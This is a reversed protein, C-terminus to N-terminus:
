DKMLNNKTKATWFSLKRQNKILGVGRKSYDETMEKTISANIM